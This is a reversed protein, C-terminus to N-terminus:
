YRCVGCYESDTGEHFGPTLAKMHVGCGPCPCDYYRTGGIESTWYTREVVRPANERIAEAMGILGFAVAAGSEFSGPCCHLPYDGRRPVKHMGESSPANPRIWDAKIEEGCGNPCDTWDAM